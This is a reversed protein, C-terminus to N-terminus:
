KIEKYIENTLYNSLTENDIDIFKNLLNKKRKGQKSM